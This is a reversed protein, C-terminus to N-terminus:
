ARPLKLAVRGIVDRQVENAGVSITCHIRELLEYSFRSGGQFLPSWRLAEAGELDAGVRAIRQLLETVYVKAVAGEHAVARGAERLALVRECFRRAVGVDVALQAVRADDFRDLLM